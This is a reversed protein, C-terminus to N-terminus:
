PTPPAAAVTVCSAPHESDTPGTWRVIEPRIRKGNKNRYYQLIPFCLQQATAPNVWRVAWQGFMSPEIEAARTKATYSVSKVAFVKSGGEGTKGTAARNIRVRWDPIQQVSFSEQIAAPVYVVIKFTNQSETENPARVVFTGRAGSLVTGQPQFASLTAHGSSMPPMALALAGACTVAAVGLAAGSKTRISM